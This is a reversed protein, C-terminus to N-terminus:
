LFDVDWTCYILEAPVLTGRSRQAAEDIPLVYLPQIGVMSLGVVKYLMACPAELIPLRLIEDLRKV